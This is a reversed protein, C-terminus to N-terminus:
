PPLLYMYLICVMKPTVIYIRNDEYKVYPITKRGWCISCTKINTVKKDILGAEKRQYQNPKKNFYVPWKPNKEEGM